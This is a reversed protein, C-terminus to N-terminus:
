SERNLKRRMEAILSSLSPDSIGLREAELAWKLASEVEAKYYDSYNLSHFRIEAKDVDQRAQDLARRLNKTPHGYEDVYYSGFVKWEGGEVDASTTLEQLNRQAQEFENSADEVDQQFRRLATESALMYRFQVKEILVEPASEYTDTLESIEEISFRGIGLHYEIRAKLRKAHSSINSQSLSDLCIEWFSTVDEDSPLEDSIRKIEDFTHKPGLNELLSLRQKMREECVDFDPIDQKTSELKEALELVQQHCSDSSNIRSVLVYMFLVLANEQGESSERECLLDILADVRNEKSRSGSSLLNRWPSIRRDRFVARLEADSAFPGCRLLTSRLKKLLDPAIDYM